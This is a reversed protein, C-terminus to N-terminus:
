QSEHGQNQPAATKVVTGKPSESLRAASLFLQDPHSLLELANDGM